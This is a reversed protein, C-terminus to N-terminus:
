FHRYGKPSDIRGVEGNVAVSEGATVKGICTIDTGIRAAMEAIREAEKAPATFLLEYDDSAEIAIEADM